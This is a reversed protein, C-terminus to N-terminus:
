PEVFRLRYFTNTATIRVRIEYTDGVSYISTTEPSWSTLDGSKEVVFAPTGVSWHILLSGGSWVVFLSPVGIVNIPNAYGLHGFGDDAVLVVNTAAQSLSVSGTWEGLAFGGSVSPDPCIGATSTLIVSDAFCALLGNTADLAQIRVPFPVNVFKPSTISDWAFHDLVCVLLTANSSFVSGFSNSVTAFFLGSDSPVLNSIILDSSNAGPIRRDGVLNAGDRWWQYNLPTTGAAIVEFRASGGTLLIQNTPQVLIAPPVGVILTANSSQDTGFANAVQVAYDGADSL